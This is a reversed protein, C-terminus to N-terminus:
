RLFGFIYWDACEMIARSENFSPFGRNATNSGNWPFGESVLLIELSFCETSFADNSFAETAFFVAVMARKGLVLDLLM